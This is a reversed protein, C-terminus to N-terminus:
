VADPIEEELVKCRTLVTQKNNRYTTHDKVTGRLLYRGGVVLVKAATAWTYINKDDDEFIHFTSFGYINEVPAAKTCTVEIDIRDGIKGIYHSKGEDYIKSDAINKIEKEDILKDEFSVENWFLKIPEIGEPLPEPMEIDSPLYWGWMRAFRTPNRQFWDLNEYSNGKFLWIYGLDGFGLIERPGKTAKIIKVEPNYKRYEAESYARVEKLSGNKMQVKIYNKGNRTFIDGVQLLDQYSKAVLANAM